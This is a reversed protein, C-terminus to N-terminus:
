SALPAAAKNENLLVTHTPFAIDAGHQHVIDVIHLLIKEKEQHFLAWDTTNTFCYIFFDLSSAGFHNFNVMIIKNQDIAEHQHLFDRVESLVAPMKKSDDYRLGITEKIRRNEMRSPNEISINAFTANPVYLPRKDFTRVRTQRWGIYEVVGEIQRDPSRIWDGVKFPRDFYIMVGGFLNALLDKAAFGVALGGIGGIALLGSISYGASQLVLLIISILVLFKVLRSLASVTTADIKGQAFLRGALIQRECGSILRILTWAVLTLILVDQLSNIRLLIPSATVVHIIEICWGAAFVWIFCWSPRRIASVVVDDWANSSDLSKKELHRLIFSLFWSGVLAVGVIAIVQFVWSPLATFTIESFNM